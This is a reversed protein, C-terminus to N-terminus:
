PPQQQYFHQPPRAPLTGFAKPSRSRACAGTKEGPFGLATKVAAVTPFWGLAGEGM